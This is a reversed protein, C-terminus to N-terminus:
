GVVRHAGSELGEARLIEREVARSIEGHRMGAVARPAKGLLGGLEDVTQTLQYVAVEAARGWGTVRDMTQPSADAAVIVFTLVGKQLARQVTEAGSVVRGAKQGVSLLRGVQLTVGERAESLLLEEDVQLGEARLTRGIRRRKVAERLCRVRPHIYCGRGPLKGRHDVHAVNDPGAVCRLLAEPSAAENCGACSRLGDGRSRGERRRSGRSRARPEAGPRPKSEGGGRREQGSSRQSM